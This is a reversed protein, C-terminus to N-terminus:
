ARLHRASCLDLGPPGDPEVSRSTIFQLSIFQLSILLLDYCLAAILVHDIDHASRLPVSTVGTQSASRHNGRICSPQKPYPPWDPHVSMEAKLLFPPSENAPHFRLLDVKISFSPANKTADSPM